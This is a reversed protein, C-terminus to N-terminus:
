IRDLYIRTTIPVAITPAYLCTPGNARICIRNYYNYTFLAHLYKDFFDAHNIIVKGRRMMIIYLYQHICHLGLCSSETTYCYWQCSSTNMCHRSYVPNLHVYMCHYM